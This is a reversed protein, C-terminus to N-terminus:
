SLISNRYPLRVYPRYTVPMKYFVDICVICRDALVLAGAELKSKAVPRIESQYFM